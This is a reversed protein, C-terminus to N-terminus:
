NLKKKYIGKFAESIKINKESYIEWLQTISGDENPTWSIQNYFNGQKGKKLESKLVMVGNQLAGKLRLVNGSNDVWIQNWSNDNRDYFNISTGRNKNSSVWAENIVCNDYAKSITNTGLIKGDESFVEWSGIWFDFENYKQSNCNGQQANLSLTFLLLFFFHFNRM